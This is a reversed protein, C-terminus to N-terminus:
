NEPVPAPMGEKERGTVATLYKDGEALGERIEILDGFTEGPIVERANLTEEPTVAWVFYKGYRRVLSERPIFFGRTRDIPLDVLLFEGFHIDRMWPFAFTLEFLGTGYDPEQARSLLTGTITRESLTRASIKQGIQIRFADKDSVQAKLIYGDTGIIVVGEQGARVEDNLQVPIESVLGTIRSILVAPKYLDLVDDKRKISLLSDEPSVMQGEKVAISEILGDSPIQHIIRTKPELRGGLSITHFQETVSVTEVAQLQQGPGRPRPGGGFPAQGYLVGTSVMLLLFYFVLIRKM